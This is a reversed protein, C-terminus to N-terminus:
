IDEIICTSVGNIVSTSIPLILNIDVRTFMVIENLDMKILVRNKIFLISIKCNYRFFNLALNLRAM